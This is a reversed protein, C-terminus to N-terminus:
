KEERGGREADRGPQDRDRDAGIQDCRAPHKEAQQTLDGIQLDVKQLEELARLKDRSVHGREPHKSGSLAGGGKPASAQAGQVPSRDVDSTASDNRLPGPLIRVQM